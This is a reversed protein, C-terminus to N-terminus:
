LLFKREGEVALGGFRAVFGLASGAHSIDPIRIRPFLEKADSLIVGTVTLISITPCSVHIGESLRTTRKTTTNGEQNKVDGLEKTNSVCGTDM